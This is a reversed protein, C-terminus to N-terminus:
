RPAPLKGIRDSVSESDPKLSGIVTALASAIMPNTEAQWANAVERIEDSTLLVGHQQIHVALQDAAAIRIDAAQQQNFAVSRLRQQVDNSSIGGLAVIATQALNPDDILDSLPQEAETLDFLTNRKLQALHALWRAAVAQYQSREEPLLQGSGIKALFPRLQDEFDSASGSEAVFTAPMSRAILRALKTRTATATPDVRGGPPLTGQWISSAAEPFAIANKRGQRTVVDTVDEPGYLVVPLYATRADARFNAITQSLDWRICNIHIIALEIGATTSAIKFADQGTRALVPTYGLNSLYGATVEARASDADVILAKAENSNTLARSLISVIREAGRFHRDPELRLIANAALFQTRVDPYNLSAIVPSKRGSGGLIMDRSGIQGLIQLAAQATGTQGAALAEALVDTASQEGATLAIYGPTEPDLPLPRDRGAEAVVWGLRAGLYLRQLERNEPTLDLAQRAFRTAYWLQAREAPMTQRVVTGAENNWSWIVVMGDDDVAPEFARSYLGRAIRGLELAARDPTLLNSGSGIQALLKALTQQAAGRLEDTASPDFAPFWLEPIAAPSRLLALAALAGLRVNASPSEVAAVTPAVAPQGIRGIAHIIQDAQTGTTPTALQKLLHPVAAEGLNRLDRIASERQVPDGSLKGILSEAFAPDESQRVSAATLKDLLPQATAQLQKIKTLKLFDATGHKDRLRILTEDDPDSEAFQKLYRNALDLRALDVMLLAAAFTEDPTKPEYLLPSPDAELEPRNPPAAGEQAAVQGSYWGAVALLCLGIVARRLGSVLKREFPNDM